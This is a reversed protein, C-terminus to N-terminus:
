VRPNWLSAFPQTLTERSRHLLFFKRISRPPPRTSTSFPMSPHCTARRCDTCRVLHDELLLRRSDSLRENLYSGLEARFEQCLLSPSGRLRERVRRQAGAIEEATASEGRVDRLLEDFKEETM